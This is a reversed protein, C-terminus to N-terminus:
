YVLGKREPQALGRLVVSCTAAPSDVHSDKFEQWSNLSEWTSEGAAVHSDKFEQWSNLSEWTSEGAAVQETTKRPWVPNCDMYCVM